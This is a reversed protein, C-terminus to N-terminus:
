RSRIVFPRREEASRRGIQDITRVGFIHRGPNLNRYIAVGSCKRAPRRDLRCWISVPTSGSGAVEFAVSRTEGRTQPGADIEVSPVRSGGIRESRYLAKAGSGFTPGFTSDCLSPVGPCYGYSVVSALFGGETVWGGGSSGSGMSCPKAWLAAPYILQESNGNDRGVVTSRCGEMDRGDFLPSPEAPYGIITMERGVLDLGFALKRAGVERSPQGEVTFFAVDSGLQGILRFEDTTVMSRAAWQGFPSRDSPTAANGNWAPVFVLDQVYSRARHDYVCHGATAVVNRGASDILTGSCAFGEGRSRFFVKGHARYPRETPNAPTFDGSTSSDSTSTSVPRDAVKLAPSPSGNAAARLMQAPTWSQRIEGPSESVTEVAVGDDPASGFAPQAASLLGATIALLIAAIARRNGARMEVM